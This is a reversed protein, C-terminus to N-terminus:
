LFPNNMIYNILKSSEKSRQDVIYWYCFDNLKINHNKIYTRSICLIDITHKNKLAQEINQIITEKKVIINILNKLSKITNKVKILYKSIKKEQCMKYLNKVISKDEKSLIGISTITLLIIDTTKLNSFNNKFLISIIEYLCIVPIKVSLLSIFNINYKKIFKEHERFFLSNMKSFDEFKTIQM